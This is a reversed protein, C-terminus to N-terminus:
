KAARLPKPRLSERALDLEAKAALFPAPEIPPADPDVGNIVLTPRQNSTHISSTQSIRADQRAPADRVLARVNHHARHRAPTSAGMRAPDAFFVTYDNTSRSGDPRVRQTWDVAGVDRLHQLARRVTGPDVGLEEAIVKTSRFDSRDGYHDAKEALVAFVALAMVDVKGVDSRLVQRVWAPVMAWQGIDSVIRQPEEEATYEESM